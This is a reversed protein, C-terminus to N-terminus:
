SPQERVPLTFYFTSGEGPQSEVWICGGHREVVKKCVALGIGTGPYQERTHLRQFLVFLRGAHEPAIGIGNDRVSFLWDSDRREARVHVHPKRDCFKLANGVLNQLVQELQTPDAMVQPLPDHTVVADKEAISRQLNALAEALAAESSTPTFPRARTTVRSFTLLDNILTQMRAAGDVAYHIFRDAKEDLRGQYRSALLEVYSAVMRLPEQLDHSAVYAFQELDRNSRELATAREALAQELRYRETVDRAAAFVGVVQGAEDRYVTANYLVPTSRGNPGRVELAYDHVSGERFVQQYGARARDPETFYDSFDTGILESRSRGTIAETAANVDTIKGDPGITVLPDLSAEILSRNYASARRLAEEARRRETIDEIMCLHRPGGNDETRLPAITMQIWVCSGDPRVYRKQMAFGTIKQANLAVMNDLDAQVDDPHTIRPWDLTALEERSRGAIAAFRPNVDYFRATLSDIVAVGLPAEEFITRFRSESARLETEMRKQDTVDTCAGMWERVTGDPGRVPAGRVAVHRYEGDRRRMRYETEYLAGERVARSWVALTRDRDDPHLAHVWGSGRIEEVSQGTFARWSPMDECVQGQADTLWVVQSTATVLSRYLEESRRLAQEAIRRRREATDLSFACAYVLCATIALSALVNMTTGYRLDYAGTEVGGLVFWGPLISLVLIPLLLRRLLTGGATDAFVLPVLGATPRAFLIGVFLLFSALAAAPPFRTTVALGSTPAVRYLWGLLSHIAILGVLLALAQALSSGRPPRVDLLVLATGSLLLVLASLVPMRGPQPAWADGTREAFLLDDIRLDWGLGHEVLTLLGVAVVVLALAQALRRLRAAPIRQLWLALGLLVFCAATNGKVPLATPLLTELAPLDFARGLLMITGLLAVVAGAAGSVLSAARCAGARGAAGPAQETTRALREPQLAVAAAGPRPAIRHRTHM